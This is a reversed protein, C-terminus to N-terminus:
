DICMTVEAGTENLLTLCGPGVPYRSCTGHDPGDGGICYGTCDSATSCVKGEDAQPLLCTMEGARSTTVQGGQTQCAHQFTETDQTPPVMEARGLILALLLGLLIM